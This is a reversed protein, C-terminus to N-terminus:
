LSPSLYISQIPLWYICQVCGPLVTHKGSFWFSLSGEAVAVKFEVCWLTQLSLFSIATSVKWIEQHFSFQMEMMSKHFDPSFSVRGTSQRDSHRHNVDLLFKLVWDLAGSNEPIFTHSGIETFFWTRSIHERPTSPFCFPYCFSTIFVMLAVNDTKSAFM